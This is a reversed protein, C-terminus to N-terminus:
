RVRFLRAPGPDRGEPPPVPELWDPVEGALLQRAFSDAGAFSGPCALLYQVPRENLAARAAAADPAGFVLMTDLLARGGRHYPGGVLRLHTWWALEASQNIDSALLIPATARDGPGALTILWPALERARCGPEPAEMREAEQRREMLGFGFYPPGFLMVVALAMGSLRLPVPWAARAIMGMLGASAIAGIGGLNSAFRRHELAAALTAVTALLLMVGRVWGGDRRGRWVLMTAALIAAPAIGAYEFTVSLMTSNGFRLPQMESVLPLLIQASVPDAGSMSIGTTGPNLLVLLAAAPGAVAAGAAGRRVPALGGLRVAAAFVLAILGAMLLHHVSVRDYEVTLWDSPPREALIAFAIMAAMAVAMRRGQRAWGAADRGLLWAIGFALLVPIAVMLTEPSVWIGFGFAAGASFAARRPRDQWAAHAAFGLGIVMALVVLVHHDARGVMSYSTLVGFGFLVMVGYTAAYPVGPWAARSAWGVALATLAHLVPCILAASAMLASDPAAGFRVAVWTPLIILVDLPRTWHVSLGEPAAMHPLVTTFWGGGEWLERVRILRLWGDSDIPFWNNGNMTFIRLHVGLALVLTFSVFVLIRLASRAQAAATSPM